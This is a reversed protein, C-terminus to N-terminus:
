GAINQRIKLNRTQKIFETYNQNSLYKQCEMRVEEYHNKLEAYSEATMQVDPKALKKSLGVLKGLATGVDNYIQSHSSKQGEKIVREYYSLKRQINTKAM